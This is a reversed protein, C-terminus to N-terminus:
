KIFNEKNEMPVTKYNEIYLDQVDKTLNIKLYKFKKNKYNSM